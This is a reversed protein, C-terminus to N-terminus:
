LVNLVVVIVGLTLGVASKQRDGNEEKPASRREEFEANGSTPTM